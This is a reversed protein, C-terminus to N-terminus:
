VGTQGALNALYNTIEVTNKLGLREAIFYKAYEALIYDNENMARDKEYFYRLDCLLANLVVKGDDTSFVRRFIRHLAEIQEEPSKDEYGKIACSM